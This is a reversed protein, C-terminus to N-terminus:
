KQIQQRVLTLFTGALDNDESVRKYGIEDVSVPCFQHYSGTGPVTEVHEYRRALKDRLLNM